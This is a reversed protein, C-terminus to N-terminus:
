CVEGQRFHCGRRGVVWGMMDTGGLLAWEGSVGPVRWRPRTEALIMYRGNGVGM